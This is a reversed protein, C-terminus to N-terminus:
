PDTDDDSADAVPRRSARWVLPRRSPNWGNPSSQEGAALSTARTVGNHAQGTETRALAGRHIAIVGRGVKEGLHPSLLDQREDGPLRGGRPRRM